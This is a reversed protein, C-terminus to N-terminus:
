DGQKVPPQYDCCWGDGIRIQRLRCAGHGDHLRCDRCYCVVKMDIPLPPNAPADEPAERGNGALEQPQQQQLIGFYDSM